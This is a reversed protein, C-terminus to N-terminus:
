ASQPDEEGFLDTLVARASRDIHEAMLGAAQDVEGDILALLIREHDKAELEIRRPFTSDRVQFMSHQSRLSALVRILRSNGSGLILLNHLHIDSRLHEDISHAAPNRQLETVQALHGRLDASDLNPAALRLALVELTSRLTYVEHVDQATFTKTWFGRRPDSVVLGDEALRLLAQRVPTRSVGLQAALTVDSLRQGGRGGSVIQKWIMEYAHDVATPVVGREHGRLMHFIEDFLEPTFTDTSPVPTM